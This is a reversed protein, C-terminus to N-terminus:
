DCNECYTDRLYDDELLQFTVGGKGAEDFLKCYREKNLNIANLMITRYDDSQTLEKNVLTLNLYYFLLNEHVDISKVQDQLVEIAKNTNSYYSLFQSLSLYDFDSLNANKYNKYIYDVAKDKNPYDQKRMLYESEVIHYNILMKNILYDAIGKNKLDLINKKLIAKDIPKANYKWIKLDTAAINYRVKPNNPDLKELEKLENSVILLNKENMLYNFASNKNFIPVFKTQKPIVMRKLFTPDVEKNKLKEFISNQIESAKSLENAVIAENFNGLLEEANMTKFKDKKELDLTIVAKRHNKLIVELENVVPGNLKTKIQNKDLSKFDAYATKSIDNLFEVWNESASVETTISPKQFSQLATVISKARQNQLEINRELNGEVSSYAKIRIRKINFDTLKLSDYVPQIDEVSYESKNKEFPIKFSLTKYKLTYSDLDQSTNLKTKYTITDLFMGMDLLEWAYAQLNYITYYRCLNKNSLFLINYELKENVLNEPISGVRVRFRGNGSPKITKLLAKSYVPKLLQGRIQGVDLLVELCGYRQKSVVDIALGDYENKVLQKFWKLDSVEFFLTNNDRVVSFGVEKPKNAFTAFCAQCVQDRNSNPFQIDYNNQANLLNGAFLLLSSLLLIPKM